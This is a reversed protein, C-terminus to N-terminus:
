GAPVLGRFVPHRVRRDATWTTFAVEVRLTPEVWTIERLEARSLSSPVDLPATACVLSSLTATLAALDHETFGSGVKGAYDSRDGNVNAIVLAGFQAARAGSGGTFGVVVFTATEYVKVKIWNPSRRGPAYFSGARKAVVGELGREQVSELLAEGDEFALSLQVHGGCDAVLAALRMQRVEIPEGIVTVRNEELLDFAFFVVPRTGSQLSQFSPLGHEDLACLEGDIVAGSSGLRALDDAVERFRDTLDNGNRSLLSVSGPAVYAIARYGDLKLEYLWAGESPLESAATALM